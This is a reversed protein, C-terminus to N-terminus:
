KKEGRRNLMFKALPHLEIHTNDSYLTHRWPGENKNRHQWKDTRMFLWNSNYEERRCEVCWFNNIEETINRIWHTSSGPHAHIDEQKYWCRTEKNRTNKESIRLQKIVHQLRSMSLWGLAADFLIKQQNLTIHWRSDRDTKQCSWDTELIRCSKLWQEEEWSWFLDSNQM